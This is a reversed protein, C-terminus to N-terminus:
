ALSVNPDNSRTTLHRGRTRRVRAQSSHRSLANGATQDPRRSRGYDAGFATVRSLLLSDRSIAAGKPPKETSLIRLETENYRWTEESLGIM